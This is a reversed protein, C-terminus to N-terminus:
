RRRGWIQYNWEKKWRKGCGMGKRVINFVCKGEKEDKTSNWTWRWTFSTGQHLSFNKVEEMMGVMEKREAQAYQKKGKVRTVTYCSEIAIYLSFVSLSVAANEGSHRADNTECATDAIEEETGYRGRKMKYEGEKDRQFHLGSSGMYCTLAQGSKQKGKVKFFIMM